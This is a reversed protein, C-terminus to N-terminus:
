MLCFALQIFPLLGPSRPNCCCLHDVLLSGVVCRWCQKGYRLDAGGAVLYQSVISARFLLEIRMVIQGIGHGASYMCTWAVDNLFKCVTSGNRRTYIMLDACALCNAVMRCGRSRLVPETTVGLCCLCTQRVPLLMACDETLHLITKAVADQCHLLQIRRM